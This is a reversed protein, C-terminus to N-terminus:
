RSSAPATASAIFDRIVPVPVYLGVVAPQDPNDTDMQSAVGILAGDQDYLGGGSNGFWIRISIRERTPTYTPDVAFGLCVTWVDGNPHGVNYVLDGVAPAGLAVNVWIPSPRRAVLLALDVSRDVALVDAADYRVMAGRWSQFTVYDARAGVQCKVDSEDICGVADPM